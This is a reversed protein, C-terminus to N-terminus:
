GGFILFSLGGLAGGFLGGSFHHNDRTRADRTLVDISGHRDSRQARSFQQLVAGDVNTVAQRQQRLEARGEGALIAAAEDAGGTQRDEIQTALAGVARQHQLIAEAVDGRLGASGRNVHRGYRNVEDLADVDDRAIQRVLDELERLESPFVLTNLTVYGKVGRHHLFAMVDGLENREINTARARANFGCNLGFYVADAGNEVAARLCERDGAPALLEPRCLSTSLM